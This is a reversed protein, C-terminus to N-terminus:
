RCLGQKRALSGMYRVRGPPTAPYQKQHAAVLRQGMLGADKLAVVHMLEEQVIPTAYVRGAKHHRHTAKTSAAYIAQWGDVLEHRWINGRMKTMRTSEVVGMERLRKMMTAVSHGSVALSLVMDRTLKPGEELEQIYRLQGVQVYNAQAM